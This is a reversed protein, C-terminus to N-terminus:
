TSSVLDAFQNVALTFSHKEKNFAEIYILNEIFIKKKALEEEVSGYKKNQEYKWENWENDYYNVINDKANSVINTSVISFLIFLTSYMLYAM